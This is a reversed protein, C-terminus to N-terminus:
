KKKAKRKRQGSPKKTKKKPKKPEEVIFDTLASQEVKERQKKSIRTKEDEVEVVPKGNLTVQETLVHGSTSLGIDVELEVLFHDYAEVIEPIRPDGKEIYLEMVMQERLFRSGAKCKELSSLDLVQKKKKPVKKMEPKAKKFIELEAEEIESILFGLGDRELASPILYRIKKKKVLEGVLEICRNRVKRRGEMWSAEDTFLKVFESTPVDLAVSLSLIDLAGFVADRILILAESVDKKPNEKNWYKEINKYIIHWPHAEKDSYYGKM